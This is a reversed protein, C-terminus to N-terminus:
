VVKKAIQPGRIPLNHVRASSPVPPLVHRLQVVSTHISTKALRRMEFQGRSGKRSLRCSVYQPPHTPDQQLASASLASSWRSAEPPPLAFVGVARLPVVGEVGDDAGAAADPEPVVAVVLDVFLLLLWDEVAAGVVAVVVVADDDVCGGWITVGCSGGRLDFSPLTHHADGASYTSGKGRRDVGTTM